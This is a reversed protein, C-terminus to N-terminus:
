VQEWIQLDESWRYRRGDGPYPIPPEWLCTEDNLVWSPRPQPPIFRDNAEDYLYGPGAFRKRFSNNYSTQVWPGSGFQLCFARGIEESEMGKEDLIDDNSVVLVQTVINNENLQAFHAM